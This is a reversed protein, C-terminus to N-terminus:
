RNRRGAKLLQQVADHNLQPMPMPRASRMRGPTWYHAAREGAPSVTAGIPSADDAVLVMAASAGAPGTDMGSRFHQSGASVAISDVEPVIAAQAGARRQATWPTAARQGTPAAASVPVSLPDNKTTNMTQADAAGCLTVLVTTAVAFRFANM